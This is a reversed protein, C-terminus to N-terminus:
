EEKSDVDKLSKRLISRGRQRRRDLDMCWFDFKGCMGEPCEAEEPLETYVDQECKPNM